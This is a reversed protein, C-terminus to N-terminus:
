DDKAGALIWRKIVEADDSGISTGPPMRDGCGAAGCEANFDQQRGDIKAFFYSKDPNFPVVYKENKAQQSNQMLAKYLESADDIAFYIGLTTAKNAHCSTNSCWRRMVPIVDARFSQGGAAADARATAITEDSKTSCAATVGWSAPLLACMVFATGLATKPMTLQGPPRVRGIM